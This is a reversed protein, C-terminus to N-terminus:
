FKFKSKVFVLHNITASKYMRNTLCYKKEKHSKIEKAIKDRESNNEYSYIISVSVHEEFIDKFIMTM